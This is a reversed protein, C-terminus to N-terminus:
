PLLEFTAVQTRTILSQRVTEEEGPSRVLLVKDPGERWVEQLRQAEALPMNLHEHTKGDKTTIRIGAM